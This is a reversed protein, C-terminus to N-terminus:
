MIFIASVLSSVLDSNFIHRKTWRRRFHNQLVAIRVHTNIKGGEKSKVSSVTFADWELTRYSEAPGGWDSLSPVVGASLMFRLTLHLHTKEITCLCLQLTSEVNLLPILSVPLSWCRWLILSSPFCDHSPTRVQRFVLIDFFCLPGVNFWM